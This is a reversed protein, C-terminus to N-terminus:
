AADLRKVLNAYINKIAAIFAAFINKRAPQRRATTGSHISGYEPHLNRGPPQREPNLLSVNKKATNKSRRKKKRLLQRTINRVITRQLSM